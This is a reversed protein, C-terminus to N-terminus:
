EVEQNWYNNRCWGCNEEAKCNFDKELYTPCFKIIGCDDLLTKPYAKLFESQRTKVFHEKSWQEVIDIVGKSSLKDSVHSKANMMCTRHKDLWLPCKSCSNDRCMRKFDKLFEVADM